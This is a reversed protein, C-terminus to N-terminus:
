APQQHEEAVRARGSTRRTAHRRLAPLSAALAGLAFATTHGIGDVDAHILDFLMAPAVAVLVVATILRLRRRAPLVVVAALATAVVYSPGVDLIHLASSPLNGSAVRLGLIGESIVTAVTHGGFVVAFAAVSGVTAELGGVALGALVLWPAVPGGTVWPISGILVGLPRHALQSLTTSTAWWWHHVLEPTVGRLIRGTLLAALLMATVPYRRPLAALWAARKGVAARRDRPSGAWAGWVPRGTPRTPAPRVTVRSSGSGGPLASVAPMSSAPPQATRLPVCGPALAVRVPRPSASTPGGLARFGSMSAGCSLDSKRWPRKM